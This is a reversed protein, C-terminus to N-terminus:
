LLLFLSYSPHSIRVRHTRKCLEGAPLPGFRLRGHPSNPQRLAAGLGSRPWPVRRGSCPAPSAGPLHLLPGPRADVGNHMIATEGKRGKSNTGVRARWHKSLKKQGRAPVFHLPRPTQSVSHCTASDECRTDLATKLLMSLFINM